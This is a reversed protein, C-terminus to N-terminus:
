YLARIRSLNSDETATSTEAFLRGALRSHYGPPVNTTGDDTMGDFLTWEAAALPGLEALRTGGDFHCAATISGIGTATNFFINGSSITGTLAATGNSGSAVGDAPAAGYDLDFSADEYVGIIGGALIYSQFTGVENFEIIELGTAVWTVEYGAYDFDFPPNEPQLPEFLGVGGVFDGEIFSYGQKLFNYVEDASAPVAMLTLLLLGIITKRM